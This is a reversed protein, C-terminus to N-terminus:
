LPKVMRVHPIGADDFPEPSVTTYGLGRYFAEAQCQADLVAERCGHERAWRELEAVVTRGLGLGRLDARVAIRQLKAKWGEADYLRWRGTAASRQDVAVLLHRCSDPSADYEDVELDAPVRQEQVFVEMRIQLCRDLEDQRSVRIIEM